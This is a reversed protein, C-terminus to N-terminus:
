SRDGPPDFRYGIGWVTAICAGAPGLKKRIRAVHSDVTRGDAGDSSSLNLVADVIQGRSVSKGPRDLLFALLDFEHRTLDIAARGRGATRADLDVTVGGFTVIRPPAAAAGALRAEIRAVLEEIWFPKGVFDAAGLEFVRLREPLDSCATLVIVPTSVHTRLTELVEYGSREPLLLDLVILAFRPDLGLQIGTRGNTALEVDFGARRLGRVLSASVAPDDEVVLISRATSPSTGSSAPM